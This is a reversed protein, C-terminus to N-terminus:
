STSCSCCASRRCTALADALDREGRAAGRGSRDMAEGVVLMALILVLLAASVTNYAEEPEITRTVLLAVAGLMALIQIPAIEFASGVVIAALVLLM